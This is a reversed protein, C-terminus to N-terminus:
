ITAQVHSVKRSDCSKVVGTGLDALAAVPGLSGHGQHNALGARGKSHTKLPTISTLHAMCASLAQLVCLTRWADADHPVRLAARCSCVGRARSGVKRRQSRSSCLSPMSTRHKPSLPRHGLLGGRSNIICNGMKVHNVVEPTIM